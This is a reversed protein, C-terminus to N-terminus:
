AKAGQTQGRKVLPLTHGPDGTLRRWANAVAPGIPPVGPEGVGTPAEESVVVQVEVQPMEDIRLSRYDHFNSQAVKGGEDLTIEDYLVAGVGFGVGGEMQAAIHNPNVAVGCDVAVWVREVKPEGRANKRVEAVQAVYTSFSKHVAVGRECGAKAPGAKSVMKEVADLVGYHRSSKDLMAKRGAIPDKGAKELLEDIFTEVTYGTHTHGVSRWWLVPVRAETNYSYVAHNDLKYAINHAGEVSVEDLKDTKGMISQCAIHQEWAVINGNEDIAGKLRHLTLPRYYGGKIDDERTWMHRVPRKMGSSKFVEAAEKIYPSGFQARRGFSGGAYQVHMVVDQRKVGCVEAIADADGGPMQAGSFCAIKGDDDRMLLADLPEMPAHALYPFHYDAEHITMGEQAFVSQVDGTSAAEIGDRQMAQAFDSAIQASSRTEAEATNWDVKLKDRGKLAAYTNEAYVAVGQSITKVDVVGKVKRTESDDVSGVTAGFQPAHLVVATLMDDALVDLTFVASGNTKAPTDLRQVAKGIISFEDPSKLKVNEPASFSAADNALEGFSATKGSAQHIVSGKEVKLSSQPVQWRAAAAMMLMAKATAGARRFQEYSNAISTSGGTIQMGLAMNKYTEDDAPAAEVGMQAWDADMEEAVLQTLGTYPGQGMELHKSLVTVSNDPAVRVFANMAAQKGEAGQIDGQILGKAQGKPLLTLGIILGSGQLFRRRSVAKAPTQTTM